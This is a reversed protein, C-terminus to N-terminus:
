YEIRRELINRCPGAAGAADETAALAPQEPGTSVLTYSAPFM